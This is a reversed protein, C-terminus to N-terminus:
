MIFGSIRSMQCRNVTISHECCGFYPNISFVYDMTEHQRGRDKSPPLYYSIAYDMAAKV